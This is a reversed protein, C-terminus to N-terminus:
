WSVWESWYLNGMMFLAFLVVIVSIINHTLSEDMINKGDGAEVNKEAEEM